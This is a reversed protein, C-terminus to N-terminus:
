RGALPLLVPQQNGIRDAVWMLPKQQAQWEAWGPALAVVEGIILLTPSKLKAHATRNPLEELTSFVVRQDQTTGREVAVAPMSAPMGNAILQQQLVPLTQLGMYVILTTNPEAGAGSIQGELLQEGGERSHGTLFRASTAVGRHTMPIGLEACIGAAATIGPVCHVKIGKSSLFQVEEGGRGFVYPDGGKLRLVTAGAEAFALLLTHIEDQSRTHLGAEKGVYVMRAGPNVLKLIDDSVLRDYLVVDAVHMLQAARLTLLGPDGPGTGVLYVLGPGEQDRRDERMRHAHLFTQLEIVDCDRLKQVSDADKQLARHGKRRAGYRLETYSHAIDYKSPRFCDVHYSTSPIQTQLSRSQFLM